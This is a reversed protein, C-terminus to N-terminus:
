VETIYVATSDKVEQIIEQKDEETIVYDQGNFKGSDADKRVSEAIEKTEQMKKLIQQYVDDDPEVIDVGETPIGQKIRQGVISSTLRKEGDDGFVGIYLICKKEFLTSPLREAAITNDELIIESATKEDYKDIYIVATKTPFEDWEKTFEFKIGNVKKNGSYLQESNVIRAYQGTVKINIDM